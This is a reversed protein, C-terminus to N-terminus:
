LILGESKLMDKYDTYIKAQKCLKAENEPRERFLTACDWSLLERGKRVGAILLHQEQAIAGCGIVGVKLLGKKM